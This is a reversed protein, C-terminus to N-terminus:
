DGALEFALRVLADVPYGPLNERNGSAPTALALLNSRHLCLLQRLLQQKVQHLRPLRLDGARCATM